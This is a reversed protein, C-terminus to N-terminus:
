LRFGGDGLAESYSVWIRKVYTRPESPPGLGPRGRYTTQGIKPASRTELSKSTIAVRRIRFTQYKM